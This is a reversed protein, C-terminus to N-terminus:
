MPRPPEYPGYPHHGYQPPTYARTTTPPMGPPGTVSVGVPSPGHLGDMHRVLHDSVARPVMRPTMDPPMSARPHMAQSPHHHAPMSSPHSGMTTTVPTPGQSTPSPAYMPQHLKAPPAASSPPPPPHSMPTQLAQPYSSSRSHGHAAYTAQPPPSPNHLALYSPRGSQVYSAHHVPPSSVSSPHPPPPPPGQRAYPTQQQYWPQPGPSVVPPGAPLADSMTRSSPPPGSTAMGYSPRHFRQPSPAEVIIEQRPAPSPQSPPRPAHYIPVQASQPPPSPGSPMVHDNYRKKQRPDEAPESNLIDLINSTKRAPEPPPRSPAQMLVPTSVPRPEDRVPSFPPPPRAVMPPQPSHSVYVASPPPPPPPPNNPEILHRINSQQAQSQHISSPPPPRPGGTSVPEASDFEKTVPPPPALPNPTFPTRAQLHQRDPVPAQYRQPIHTQHAPGQAQPPPPPPQHTMPHRYLNEVAQQMPRPQPSSQAQLVPRADARTDTFFGIRPGQQHNQPSAHHIAQVPVPGQGAMSVAPQPGGAQALMPYRSAHGPPSMRAMTPQQMRAAGGDIEMPDISPALPRPTTIYNGEMRKRSVAAPPPPPGLNEGRERKANGERAMDDLETRGAELLRNYYNRVMTQTKTTMYNAIAQWNTGFHQVLRPFEQQEPVSWYSSAQSGSRHLQAQQQAQRSVGLQPEPVGSAGATTALTTQDAVEGLGEALPVAPRGSQLVALLNAGELDKAKQAEDAVVEQVKDLLKGRDKEAKLPSTTAPAAAIPPNRARRQGRERAGTGRTRKAAREVGKEPAGAKRTIGPGPTGQDTDNSASEGFTPAAARRPRGTDTVAIAPTEFEDGEYVDPHVGLDKVLANSKPRTQVTRGGRRGGKRNRRRNLLAKYKAEIKTLYYHEICQHYDRNPIGEAIKGWKKPFEVFRETFIQQEEGNFNDEPPEFEFLELAQHANILQNTDKFVKAVREVKDLMLPIEAEKEMDAEAKALLERREQEERAAQESERLVRQIDLESSFRHVRRGETVTTTPPALPSVAQDSPSASQEAEEKKKDLVEAVNVRWAKYNERYSKRLEDDERAIDKRQKVLEARLLDKIREHKQLNEQFFDSESFPTPPATNLFPLADIPPTPVRSPSQERRTKEDGDASTEVEETSPSPLGMPVSPVPVPAELSQIATETEEELEEEEREREREEVEEEEEAEKKAEVAKVREEEEKEELLRKQVEETEQAAIEEAEQKKMTEAELNEALRKEEELREGERKGSEQKEIVRCLVTVKDAVAQYQEFVSKPTKRMTLTALEKEFKEKSKAFDEEDLEMEEDDEEEEDSIAGLGAPGALDELSPEPALKTEFSMEEKSSSPRPEVKDVEMKVDSARRKAPSEFPKFASKSLEPSVSGRVPSKPPAELKSPKSSEPPRDKNDGVEKRAQAVTSPGPGRGYSPAGPRIWQLNKNRPPGKDTRNPPRDPRGPARDAKPGTPINLGLSPPSSSLTASQPASPAGPPGPSRAAGAGFTPRSSAASSTPRSFSQPGTPPLRSGAVPPPLSDSLHTMSHSTGTVSDTAPKSPAPAPNATSPPQQRPSPQTDVSKAPEKPEPPPARDAFRDARPGLPPQSSTPAKPGASAAKPGQPIQSPESTPATPPLKSEPPAKWVSSTPGPLPGSKYSVSGFAPVQPAQPPPSAVAPPAFRERSFDARLPPYEGKDMDRRGDRIVNSSLASSARRGPPPERTSEVPAPRDSAPGPVSVGPPRPTSPTTVTGTAPRSDSRIPGQDRKYREAEREREEREIRRDEERREARRELERERERERDERAEREWRRDRSRSRPRYSTREDVYPPRGRGRSDWDGRGRGSFGGRSFPPGGSSPSDGSIISPPGDRSGRRSRSLDLDRPPFDRFDRLPPSRGRSGPRRDRNDLDRDRWGGRDRDRDGRFPPPGDRPDRIDRFDRDRDRDRFDGRGAFGRGRPGAPVFSGGGGSRPPPDVLAKPGRPPERFTDRPHASGPGGDPGSRSPPETIRSALSGGYPMSSRRDSFRSPSRDRPVYRSEGSTNNFRSSM